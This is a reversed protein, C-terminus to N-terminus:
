ESNAAGCKTANERTPASIRGEWLGIVYSLVAVPFIAAAVVTCTFPDPPTVLAAVVYSVVLIAVITFARRM